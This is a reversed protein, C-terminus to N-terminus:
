DRDETTYYVPKGVATTLEPSAPIYGSSPSTRFIYYTGFGGPGTEWRGKNKLIEVIANFAEPLLKRTFPGFNHDTGEVHTKLNKDRAKNIKDLLVKVAHNLPMSKPFSLEGDDVGLRAWSFRGGDKTLKYAPALMYEDKIGEYSVIKIERLGEPDTAVYDFLGKNYGYPRKEVTWRPLATKLEKLVSEPSTDTVMQGSKQEEELESTLSNLIFPWSGKLKPLYEDNAVQEVVDEGEPTLEAKLLELKRLSDSIVKFCASGKLKDTGLPGFPREIAHAVKHLRTSTDEEVAYSLIFTISELAHTLTTFPLYAKNYYYDSHVNGKKGRAKNLCKDFRMRSCLSKIKPLVQEALIAVQEPTFPQASTVKLRAAIERVHKAIM